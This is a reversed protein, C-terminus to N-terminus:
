LAEIWDRLVSAAAPDTVAVGLPPMVKFPGRYGPSGAEVVTVFLVSGEPDGPVVRTGAGTESETPQGVTNAVADEPYLSFSSNISDGGNHCSACNGVFYGLAATEKSTRGEVALRTPPESFVRSTALVDDTQLPGVGLVPAGAVAEHTEHCTRCDLRAPLTHPREDEGLVLPVEAWNGELRRAEPADDSWQYLAYDWGRENRFVLRTEVPVGDYVFTKALVTGPPFDWLMSDNGDITADEPLYLHREKTLGDSYLEHNPRYAVLDSFVTRAEMDAFLGVGSLTTPPTEGTDLLWRDSSTESAGDGCGAYSLVVLTLALNLRSRRLVM